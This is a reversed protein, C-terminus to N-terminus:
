FDVPLTYLMAMADIYIQIHILRIYESKILNYSSDTDLFNRLSSETIEGKLVKILEIFIDILVANEQPLTNTKKITEEIKSLESDIRTKDNIYSRDAMYDKLETSIEAQSDLAMIFEKPVSLHLLTQNTIIKNKFELDASRKNFTTTEAGKDTYEVTVATPHSLKKLFPWLSTNSKRHSSLETTSNYLNICHRYLDKQTYRIRKIIINQFKDIEEDTIDLSKKLVNQLISQIYQTNKIRQNTTEKEEKSELYAAEEKSFIMCVPQSLISRHTPATKDVTDERQATKKAQTASYEYSGSINRFCFLMALLVM